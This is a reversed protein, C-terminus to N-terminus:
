NFKNVVEIAIRSADSIARASLTAGSITPIGKGCFLNDKKTKGKFSKQWAKNPKYEKPEKFALIEISKIRNKTDLVYLVATKKSRVKKVIIVAYGKTKQKYSILYMRVLNSDLKAKAKHQIEKIEKRTLRFQKKTITVNKNFSEKIIAGIDVGNKAYIFHLSITLLFIIKKM